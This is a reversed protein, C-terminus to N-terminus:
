LVLVALGTVAEASAEEVETEGAAEGPGLGGTRASLKVLESESVVPNLSEQTSTGWTLNALLDRLRSSSIACCSLSVSPSLACIADERPRWSVPMNSALLVFASV